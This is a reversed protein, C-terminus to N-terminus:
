SKINGSGGTHALKELEKLTHTHGHDKDTVYHDHDHSHVITHTHTSNDHTHTFTHSHEHNHKICLTDAVVALSGAIMIILAIFYIFGLKEKLFVFSLFVGIFPALAYYASTKAAGIINQSRVYMFISLGYSVFGLILAPIVYKIMPLSEGKVLAIVLSGLGSFIGKLIVIEYTNKSSIKRTCNNELGWCITAMIVFLSGYSFKLSEEGEFSLLVSSAIILIIAFLIKKSIKEKFVIVAIFTTAVIEFNGLLSANASKGYNVGLMLLIPAAVDLVIMGIVYPLDSRALLPMDKMEKKFFFSLILIGFGAGLYLLSAMTAPGIGSLLIKSFPINLAYFVAALFAYIIAKVRINMAIEGYILFFIIILIL